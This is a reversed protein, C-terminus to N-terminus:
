RRSSRTSRSARSCAPWTRSRTSRSAPAASRASPSRTTPTTASSRRCTSRSSLGTQGRGLLAQIAREDGGRLRVRRVAADDVAPRPCTRIRGARSRSAGPPEAPGPADGPGYVPKVEIGSETLRRDPGTAMGTIWPPRSDAGAPGRPGGPRDHAGDASRGAADVRTRPTGDSRAAPASSRRSRSAAARSSTGTIAGRAVARDRTEFGSVIAEHETVLHEHREVRGGRIVQMM